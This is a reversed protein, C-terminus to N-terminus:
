IRRQKCFTYHCICRPPSCRLRCPNLSLGHRDGEKFAKDLETHTSRIHEVVDVEEDDVCLSRYPVIRVYNTSLFFLCSPCILLDLGACLSSRFCLVHNLADPATPALKPDLGSKTRHCLAETYWRRAMHIKLLFLPSFIRFSSNPSHM